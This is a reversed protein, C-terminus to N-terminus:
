RPDLFPSWVPERVNGAQRLNQRVRGDITVTALESGSAGRTAYIIMQGNPAFSPSEDLRGETLTQMTGRELDYRAIQYGSGGRHVFALSQGDPAYIANLNQSGEFTLREPSGSGDSRMRYVQPSGGRDSTFVIHRGDPSWEGETDIGYHTTLRKREGSAINIVYIDPNQEFSLTVALKKADPSWSPSGNIGRQSIVQRDQGSAVDVIHVASRGERYRVYAIQRANPSWAPSMLPESSSVLARPNYGDADAVMLRFRMNDGSGTSTVYALRTNFVGPYGTIAEFVLDAIDHATYRLMAPEAPAPMDFALLRESKFVDILHFRVVNNARMQGVVLYETGLARWNRLSVEDPSTPTELMDTRRLPEFLGSRKLDDAVIKAVDVPANEGNGLPVIAIPIARVDGGTITIELQASAHASILALVVGTIFRRFMTSPLYTM